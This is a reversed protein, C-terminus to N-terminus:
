KEKDARGGQAPGVLREGGYVRRVGRGMERERREELEGGAIGAEEEPLKGLM